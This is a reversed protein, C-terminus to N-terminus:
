SKDGLRTVNDVYRQGGKGESGKKRKEKERRGEGGEAM